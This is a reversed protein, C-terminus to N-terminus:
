ESYLRPPTASGIDAAQDDPQRCREANNQIVTNAKAEILVWEYSEGRHLKAIGDWTQARGRQPWYKKWRTLSTM